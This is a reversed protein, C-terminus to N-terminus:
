LANRGGPQVARRHRRVLWALALTLLAVMPWPGQHFVAQVRMPIKPLYVVDGVLGADNLWVAIKAANAAVVPFLVATAM